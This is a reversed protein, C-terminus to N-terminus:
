NMGICLAIVLLAIMSPKLMAVSSCSGWDVDQTTSSDYPYCKYPKGDCNGGKYCNCEFDDGCETPSGASCSDCKGKKLGNVAM